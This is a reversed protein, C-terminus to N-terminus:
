AIPEYPLEYSESSSKFQIKKLTSNVTINIVDGKVFKFSQIM